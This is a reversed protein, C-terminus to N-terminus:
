NIRIPDASSGSGSVYTTSSTLYFSPRVARNYSYVLYQGLSGPNYVGFTAISGSSVRSITWEWLGMYMWNNSSASSYSDMNTTWYTTSAAFGFDNVYMLGIKGNWSTGSSEAKYFERSTADTTSYGGVYYIHNVIKEQWTSGLSNLYSNNLRNNIDSTSWEIDNGSDWMYNGLSTAKILKVENNFVGIIRYLNASPCTTADIGFCVYNNPNAGSYRYSNDNASNALSNTHYYIGNNGKTFYYKKIGVDSTADVTLTFGSDTINSVSVSNIVPVSIDTTSVIIEYINSKAGTNDIVYVKINYETLKNLNNITIPTTTSSVYENDNVSYYYATINGNESTASVDLTVSSGTVNTAVVNDIWVGDYKDFYVYCRDSSNSLLNITNNQSNYELEGGNECGSLNENFIYGSEPWTTDKTETYEGSGSETEYMMTIMNSNIVQKNKDINSIINNEKNDMNNFTVIAIISLTLIISTILLIKKM